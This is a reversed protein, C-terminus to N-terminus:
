NELASHAATPYSFANVARETRAPHTHADIM